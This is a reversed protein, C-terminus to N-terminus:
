DCEGCIGIVGGEEPPVFAGELPGTRFRQGGIRVVVRHRGEAEPPITAELRERDAHEVPLPRGGWRVVPRGLAFGRGTLVIRCREQGAERGCQRSVMVEDAAFPAEPAVTVDMLVRRRGHRDVLEIWGGPSGEPLEPAAFRARGRRVRVPSTPPEAPEEGQAEEGQAETPAGRVPDAVLEARMGAALGEGRVEIPDGPYFVGERVAEVRLLPLVRLRREAEGEPTEVRLVATTADEPLRLEIVDDDLGEPELRRDGLFVDLGPRNWGGGRVVLVEGPDAPDPEFATIVPDDVIRLTPGRVLGRATVLRLEGGEADPLRVLLFRAGQGTVEARVSGVLAGRVADLGRGRVRVVTGPTGSLPRVSVVEPEAQALAPPASLLAALWLPFALRM